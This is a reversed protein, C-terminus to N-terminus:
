SADSGGARSANMEDIEKLALDIGREIIATLTTKYPLSVAAKELQARREDTIRFTVTASM